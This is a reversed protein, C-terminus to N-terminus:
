KNKVTTKTSNYNDKMFLVKYVTIFFIKVDLFFSINEVYYVDLIIRDDWMVDKRGNVQAWGTVGPRLNFRKRQITSYDELPWPHYTLTPRPGIVSMQGKVINFLQPLEDISVKRIFRGIKTVRPDNKAEYVGDKEAGISMSRFKYITFEKGNIGLRRQRFLFPGASELKIIIATLVLLPSLFIILGVAFIFDITRKIYNYKM